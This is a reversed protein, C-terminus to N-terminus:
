PKEELAADVMTRWGIVADSQMSVTARMEHEFAVVMKVTPERMAAIAARAQAEWIHRGSEFPPIKQFLSSSSLTQESEAHLARAVREVMESM